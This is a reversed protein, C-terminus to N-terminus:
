RQRRTYFARSGRSAIFLTVVVLYTSITDQSIHYSSGLYANSIILIFILVTWIVLAIEGPHHGQYHNFWRKFEKSGIYVTLLTIYLLSIPSILYTYHGGSWFDIIIIFVIVALWINALWRWYKESHSQKAM